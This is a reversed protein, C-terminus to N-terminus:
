VKKINVACVKIGPMKAVPDLTDLTLLNAAAEKFHFTMFVVGPPLTESVRAKATVKGRRSTVEVMGDGPAIGLRSADEPSVELAGEPYIESLGKSKRSIMTHYHYLVRGTSLIFPYEADPLEPPPIYPTAHFKGKGRTFMGQHLYPTGPHETTPCPWQLGMGELREYRIGGYSPTLSAIEEMIEAPHAYKMPYGLRTSLDSIIEWDQRANGVPEIAKRVRQVRRETNTFTGDKEAFSVGPLVVHALEATESLFLDQVVLLDLHQMEQRVKNSDPDSLLPNEGLIFLAKLKGEGIEKMMELLTVGPKPNLPAGWAKEFKQRVADDDVRQYGTYVNPLGGVDCAGQVNNQGRLPNVGSHPKGVQGATMALNALALVNNTGTAHQTIGMAYLITSGPSQAYMRAAEVLDAAPVGTIKEVAEPTYDKVAEALAEFGETRNRIFDENRWGHSLIAQIMGNILAVDTGPKHNLFLHAFQVLEIRRPDAVILKAGNQRVAAKVELAIVPHNETTNSGIVLICAAQRIEGISNTMSGSGFAM